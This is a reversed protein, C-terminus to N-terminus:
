PHPCSDRRMIPSGHAGTAAIEYPITERGSRVYADKINHVCM